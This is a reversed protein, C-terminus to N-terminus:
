STRRHGRWIRKRVKIELGFEAATKTAVELCYKLAEASDEKAHAAAERAIDGRVNSKPVSIPLLDPGVVVPLDAGLAFFGAEQAEQFGKHITAEVAELNAADAVFTAYMRGKGLVLKALDDCIGDTCMVADAPDALLQPSKRNLSVSLRSQDRM